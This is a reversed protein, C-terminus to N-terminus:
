KSAFESSAIDQEQTTTSNRGGKEARQRARKQRQRERAREKAEEVSFRPHSKQPFQLLSPDKRAM